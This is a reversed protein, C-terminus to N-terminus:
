SGPAEFSERGQTIPGVQGTAVDVVWVSDRFDFVVYECSDTFYYTSVTDM